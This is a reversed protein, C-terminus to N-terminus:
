IQLGDGQFSPVILASTFPDPRFISICNLTNTLTHTLLCRTEPYVHRQGDTKHNIESKFSFRNFPMVLWILDFHKITDYKPKGLTGSFFWCWERKGVSTFKLSACYRGDLTESQSKTTSDMRLLSRCMEQEVFSPLAVSFSSTFLLADKSVISLLSDM